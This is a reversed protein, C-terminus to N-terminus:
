DASLLFMQEMTRKKEQFNTEDCEEILDNFTSLKNVKKEEETRLNM